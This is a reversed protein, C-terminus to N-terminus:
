AVLAGLQGHYSLQDIVNSVKDIGRDASLALERALAYDRMCHSYGWAPNKFNKAALDRVGARWDAAASAASAPAPAPAAAAPLTAVVAICLAAAQAM